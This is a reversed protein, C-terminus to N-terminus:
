VDPIRGDADTILISEISTDFVNAALRLREEAQRQETIDQINGVSLLVTGSADREHECQERVWRVAGTDARVIRHVFDYAPGGPSLSAQYAAELAARDDPHVFSFHFWVGRSM